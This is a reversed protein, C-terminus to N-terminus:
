FEFAEKKPLPSLQKKAKAVPPVIHLEKVKPIFAEIEDQSFGSINIGSKNPSIERNNIEIGGRSMGQAAQEKEDAAGTQEFFKLDVASTSNQSAPRTQPVEFFELNNSSTEVVYGKLMLKDLQDRFTSQAMGIAQKVAAPSLAFTYGNANSAFYLYLALAYPGLDRAAYQWNTNLIGLFDAKAAERHVTVTRQNPFTYPM